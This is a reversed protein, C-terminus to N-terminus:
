KKEDEKLAIQDKNIVFQQMLALLDRLGAYTRHHQEREEATDAQLMELALKSEAIQVLENFQSDAMLAECYMGIRVQEEEVM